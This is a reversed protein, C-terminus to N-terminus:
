KKKDWLDKEAQLEYRAAIYSEVGELIQAGCARLARYQERTQPDVSLVLPVRLETGKRPRGANRRAGGAKSRNGTM